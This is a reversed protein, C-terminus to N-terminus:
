EQFNRRRLGALLFSAALVLILPGRRVRSVSASDEGALGLKFDGIVGFVDSVGLDMREAPCLDEELEELVRDVSELTPLFVLGYGVWLWRGWVEYRCCCGERSASEASTELSGRFRVLDSFCVRRVVKTRDPVLEPM